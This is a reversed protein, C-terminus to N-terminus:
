IYEYQPFAQYIKYYQEDYIKHEIWQTGGHYVWLVISDIIVRGQHDFQFEVEATHNQGWEDTYDYDLTAKTDEDKPPGDFEPSLSNNGPPRNDLPIFNM